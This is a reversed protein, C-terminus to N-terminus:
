MGGRSMEWDLSRVSLLRSFVSYQFRLQDLLPEVEKTRLNQAIKGDNRVLQARVETLRGAIGAIQIMVEEPPQKSFLKVDEYYGDLERQVEKIWPSPGSVSRVSRVTSSAEM